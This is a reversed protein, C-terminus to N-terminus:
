VSQHITINAVSYYLAPSVLLNVDVPQGAEVAMFVKDLSGDRSEPRSMVTLFQLYDTAM